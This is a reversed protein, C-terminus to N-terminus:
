KQPNSLLTKSKPVENKRPLIARKGSLCKKETESINKLKDNKSQINQGTLNIDMSSFYCFNVQNICLTDANSFM